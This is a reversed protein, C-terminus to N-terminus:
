LNTLNRQCIFKYPAHSQAEEEKVFDLMHAWPIYTVYVWTAVGAYKRRGEARTEAVWQLDKHVFPGNPFRKFYDVLHELEIKHLSLHNSELIQQQTAGDSQTDDNKM